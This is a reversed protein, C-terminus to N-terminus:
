VCGMVINTSVLHETVDCPHSPSSLPQECCNVNLLIFTAEESFNSSM